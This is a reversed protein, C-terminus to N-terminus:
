GLMDGHFASDYPTSLVPEALPGPHVSDVGHIELVRSREVCLPM